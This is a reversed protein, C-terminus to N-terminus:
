RPAGARDLGPGPTPGAAGATARPSSGGRRRSTLGIGAAVLVSALLLTPTLRDGSVVAAILVGFIPSALFWAALASPRYVQLLWSNVIFNFGAVIVGQYFLSVALSATYRTAAAPEWWLSILLFCASGVLSQGLLLKVPDIRQVAQAM